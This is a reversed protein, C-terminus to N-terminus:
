VESNQQARFRQWRLQLGALLKAKHEASLSRGSHAISLKRRTEETIRRGLNALRSKQICEESPRRGKLKEARKAILEPSQKVGLLPSPRGKKAQSIKQATESSVIRGKGIKSLKLRTEESVVRHEWSQSIKARAEGSIERGLNAQRIKSKTEESHRRGLMGSPKGKLAQSVKALREPNRIAQLHRLRAEGVMPGGTGGLTMNYGKDPNTSDFSRIYFIESHDLEERDQCVLLVTRSFSEPSYKRIARYLFTDGGNKAELVHTQWRVELPQTTQGVYVKGNVQNTLCYIIGFTPLCLRQM